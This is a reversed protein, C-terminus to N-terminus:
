CENYDPIRPFHIELVPDSRRRRTAMPSVFSTPATLLPLVDWGTRVMLGFYALSRVGALLLYM